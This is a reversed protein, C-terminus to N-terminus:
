KASSWGLLGTLEGKMVAEARSSVGLKRFVRKLHTRVTQPSTSTREAIDGTSLGDALLQLVQHEKPTLHAAEARTGPATAGATAGFSIGTLDQLQCMDAVPLRRAMARHYRTRAKAFVSFAAQAEETEGIRLQAAALVGFAERLDNMSLEGGHIAAGAFRAAEMPQDITLYARAIPLHTRTPTGAEKALRLATASEGMAMLLDLYARFTLHDIGPDTTLDM